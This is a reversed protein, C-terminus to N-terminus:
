RKLRRTESRSIRALGARVLEENISAPAGPGADADAEPWLSVQARGQGDKGHSRVIVTQLLRPPSVLCNHSIFAVTFRVQGFAM